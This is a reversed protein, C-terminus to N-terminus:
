SCSTKGLLSRVYAIYKFEALDGYKAAKTKAIISLIDFFDTGIDIEQFVPLFIGFLSLILSEASMSGDIAYTGILISIDSLASAVIGEISGLFLAGAGIIGFVIQLILIKREKEEETLIQKGADYTYKSITAIESFMLTMEVCEYLDVASSSYLTNKAENIVNQIQTCNEKNINSLINPYVVYSDLITFDKLVFTTGDHDFSISESRQVFADSSINFGSYDSFSKAASELEDDPIVFDQYYKTTITIGNTRKQNVPIYLTNNSTLGVIVSELKLYEVEMYSINFSNMTEIIDTTNMYDFYNIYRKKMGDPTITPDDDKVYFDGYGDTSSGYLWDGFVDTLNKYNEDMYANYYKLYNDYDDLIKEVISVSETVNEIVFNVTNEYLCGFSDSNGSACDYIDVYGFDDSDYWEDISDEDDDYFTTEYNMAWLVSGSLGYPKFVDSILYGRDSDHM